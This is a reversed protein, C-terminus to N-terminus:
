ITNEIAIFKKFYNKNKKHTNFYRLLIEFLNFLDLKNKEYVKIQKFNLM